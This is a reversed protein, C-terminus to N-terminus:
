KATPVKAPASPNAADATAQLEDFEILTLVADPAEVPQMKGEKARFVQGPAVMTIGTDGIVKLPVASAKDAIQTGDATIIYRGSGGEVVARGAANRIEFTSGAILSRVVTFIRGKKLELLTNMQRVDDKTSHTMSEFRVVSDPQVRVSTGIRRFFLDARASGGTRVVAGQFLVQNVKLKKFTTGDESFECQDKVAIVVAQPTDANEDKEIVTTQAHTVFGVALLWLSGLIFTRNKLTNNQTKGPFGQAVSNRPTDEELFLGAVDIARAVEEDTAHISIAFDGTRMAVGYQTVSNRPIGLSYLAAGGAGLFGGSLAGLVTATLWGAWTGTVPWLALGPKFFVAWGALFGAVVGCIAGHRWWDRIRDPANYYGTSYKYEHHNRGYISLRARDFGARQLERVVAAAMSHTGCVAVVAYKNTIM